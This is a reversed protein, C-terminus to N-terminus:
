VNQTNRANRANQANQAIRNLDANAFYWQYFNIRKLHKATATTAKKIWLYRGVSCVFNNMLTINPTRTSHIMLNACLVQLMMRFVIMIYIITKWKQKLRFNSLFLCLFRINNLLKERYSDIVLAWSIHNVGSNISPNKPDLARRQAQSWYM